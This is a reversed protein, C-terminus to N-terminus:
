LYFLVDKDNVLAAEQNDSYIKHRVAAHHAFYVPSVVGVSKTCRGYMHCLDYIFKQLKDGYQNEDELVTSRVPRATGKMAKHSVMYFETRGMVNANMFLNRTFCKHRKSESERAYIQYLTEEPLCHLGM